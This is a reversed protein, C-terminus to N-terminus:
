TRRRCRGGDDGDAGRRATPRVALKDLRVDMAAFYRPYHRLAALGADTVFGAYVLRGRQDSMDALAPCCPWRPEARQAQPRGRTSAGRPADCWTSSRGCGRRTGPGPRLEVLAEFGARDWPPGGVEDILSDVACDWCDALLAATSATRTAARPRAQGANDLDALSRQREALGTGGASALRRVGARM